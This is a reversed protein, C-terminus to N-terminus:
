TIQDGAGARGGASFAQGVALGIGQMEGFTQAGAVCPRLHVEAGAWAGAGGRMGRGEGQQGAAGLMVLKILARGLRGTEALQQGAGHSDVLGAVPEGGGACGSVAISSYM